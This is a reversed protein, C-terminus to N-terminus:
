DTFEAEIPGDDSSDPLAVGGASGPAGPKPMNGFTVVVSNDAQGQQLNYLRILERAAGQAVWPNSNNLQAQLVAYAKPIITGVFRTLEAARLAIMDDRKFWRTVTAPDVNLEKAIKDKSAGSAALHAAMEMKPTIPMKTGKKVPM